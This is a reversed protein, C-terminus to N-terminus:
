ITIIPFIFNKYTASFEAIFFYHSKSNSTM